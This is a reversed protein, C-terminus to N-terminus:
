LSNQPLNTLTPSVKAPPASPLRHWPVRTWAAACVLHAGAMPSDSDGLYELSRTSWRTINAFYIITDDEGGRMRYSTTDREVRRRHQEEAQYTITHEQAAQTQPTGSVVDQPPLGDALMDTADARGRSNIDGRYTITDTNPNPPAWGIFAGYSVYDATSYSTTHSECAGENDGTSYSIINRVHIGSVPVSPQSIDEQPSPEGAVELQLPDRRPSVMGGRNPQPPQGTAAAAAAQLGEAAGAMLSGVGAGTPTAPTGAARRPSTQRQVGPAGPERTASPTRRGRRRQTQWDEAADGVDEMADAGSETARKRECHRREAENLELRSALDHVKDAYEATLQRLINRASDDM